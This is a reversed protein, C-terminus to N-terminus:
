GADELELWDLTFFAARVLRELDEDWHAAWPGAYLRVPTPLYRTTPQVRLMAGYEDSLHRRLERLVDPVVDWDGPVLITLTGPVSM